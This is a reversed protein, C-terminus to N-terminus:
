GAPVFAAMCILGTGVDLCAPLRLAALCCKSSCVQVKNAVSVQGRFGGVTLHKGDPSVALATMYRDYARVPELPEGTGVDWRPVSGVGLSYVVTGDPSFGIHSPYQNTKAAWREKGTDADWARVARREM